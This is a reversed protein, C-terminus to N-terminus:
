KLFLLINKTILKEDIDKYVPNDVHLKLPKYPTELLLGDKQRDHILRLLVETHTSYEERTPLQLTSKNNYYKNSFIFGM